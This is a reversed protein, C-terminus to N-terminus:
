KIGLKDALLNLVYMAIAAYIMLRGKTLGSELAVSDVRSDLADLEVKVEAKLNDRVKYVDDRLQDTEVSQDRNDRELNSLRLEITGFDRNYDGTLM